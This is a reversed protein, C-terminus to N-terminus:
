CPLLAHRLEIMTHNERKHSTLFRQFSQVPIITTPGSVCNLCAHSEIRNLLRGKAFPIDGDMVYGLMCGIPLGEAYQETLYRMMGQTVYQPALSHRTKGYKVNLRKCEYALYREREWDILAAMDIKGKSFKEGTPSTGFPEFQYEIYYCIQRAIPDISLSHVLNITIADEEPQPPLKALCTPWIIAIRELLREDVTIFLSKWSRMDGIITM